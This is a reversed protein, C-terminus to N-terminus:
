RRSVRFYYFSLVSKRSYPRVKKLLLRILQADRDSRKVAYHLCTNGKSFFMTPSLLPILIFCFFLIKGFVCLDRENIPTGNAILFEVVFRSGGNLVCYHLPTQLADNQLAILSLVRRPVRSSFPTGHGPFLRWAPHIVRRL